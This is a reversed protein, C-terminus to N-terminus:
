AAIPEHVRAEAACRCGLGCPATRVDWKQGTMGDTVTIWPGVAWKTRGFLEADKREREEWAQEDRSDLELVIPMGDGNADRADRDEFDLCYLKV